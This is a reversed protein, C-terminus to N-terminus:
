APRQLEYRGCYLVMKVELQEPLALLTDHIAEVTWTDLRELVPIAAELM